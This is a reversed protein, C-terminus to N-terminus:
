RQEDRKGKRIVKVLSVCVQVIGCIGWCGRAAKLCALSPYVRNGDSAEGLEHDFDIKCMYGVVSRKM